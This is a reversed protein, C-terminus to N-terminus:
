FTFRATGRFRRSDPIGTVKGYEWQYDINTPTNTNFLNFGDIALLGVERNGVNARGRRSAQM